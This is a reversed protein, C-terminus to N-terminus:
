DPISPTSVRMLALRGPGTRVRLFGSLLRDAEPDGTDAFLRGGDLSSLKEQSALVILGDKGAARVIAASLPQNGRGFLFGQGGIVGLIIRVPRGEILALIDPEGLDRGVLRRDLVADIGLLSGELGLRRLIGQTTTGPGLLYVAGSRMDRAVEACAGDLAADGSFGRAKPAQLLRPEFPVRAYGFLRPELRGQRLAEEDLDLVERERFAVKEGDGIALAALEGAAEPSTAFVGSQMKVGSPVGLVPISDGVAALVDRATGDGGAFLILATGADRMALAASRTDAGSTPPDGIPLLQPSLGVCRAADEGMPGICTLLSAAGARAALRSLARSAAVQAMPTAGLALARSVAEAGDTGKLGVRGGLGAVPNVILGLTRL